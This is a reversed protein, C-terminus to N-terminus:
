LVQLTGLKPNKNCQIIEMSHVIINFASFFALLRPSHLCPTLRAPSPARALSYFLACSLTKQIFQFLATAVADCEVRARETENERERINITM